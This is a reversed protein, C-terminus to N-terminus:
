EGMLKLKSFIGSDTYCAIATRQNNIDPEFFESFTYCHSNLKNCWMELRQEDPVSVYVLTNNQWENVPNDLLWQAVAHGSQVAQYPLGLDKRSLVFLKKM